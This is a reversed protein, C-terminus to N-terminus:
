RMLLWGMLSGLVIAMITTVIQQVRQMRVAWVSRKLAHARVLDFNHDAAQSVRVAYNRTPIGNEQDIKM